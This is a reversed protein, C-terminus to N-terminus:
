TRIVTYYTFLRKTSGTSKIRLWMGFLGFKTHIMNFLCFYMDLKLQTTQLGITAINESM